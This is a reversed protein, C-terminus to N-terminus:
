NDLWAVTVQRGTRGDRRYSFYRDSQKYTCDDTAEVMAVGANILIQKAMGSLDALYFQKGKLDQNALQSSDSSARNIRATSVPKFFDKLYPNKDTFAQYVEPGVQFVDAGIGPGIWAQLLQNGAHEYIAHITNELVGDVLGRWGAHAVAVVSSNFGAIVVPLCDATMIALPLKKRTTLLSDATSIQRDADSKVVHVKNSHVQNLWVPDDPLAQRLQMRNQMVSAPNDGVHMALNLGAFPGSSMGGTRWTSFYKVGLWDMGSCAQIGEVPNFIQM